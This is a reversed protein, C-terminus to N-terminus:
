AFEQQTHLTHADSAFRNPALAARADGALGQHQQVEMNRAPLCQPSVPKCWVSLLSRQVSLGCTVSLFRAAKSQASADPERPEREQATDELSRLALHLSLASWECQRHARLSKYGRLQAVGVPIAGEPGYLDPVHAQVPM